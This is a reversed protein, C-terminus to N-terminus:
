LDSKEAALMRVIDNVSKRFEDLVQLGEELQQKAAAWRAELENLGEEDLSTPEPM